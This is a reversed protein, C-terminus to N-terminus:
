LVTGAVKLRCLAAAVRVGQSDAVVDRKGHDM